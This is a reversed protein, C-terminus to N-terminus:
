ITESCSRSRGEIEIYEAQATVVSGAPPTFSYFLATIGPELYSSPYSWSISDPPPRLYLTGSGGTYSYCVLIRRILCINRGQNKLYVLGNAGSKTVTVVLSTASQLSTECTNCAM